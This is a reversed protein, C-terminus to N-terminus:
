DDFGGAADDGGLGSSPERFIPHLKIGYLGCLLRADAYFTGQPKYEKMNAKSTDVAACEDFTWIQPPDVAIEDTM